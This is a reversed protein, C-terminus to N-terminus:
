MTPPSTMEPLLKDFPTVMRTVNLRVEGITPVKVWTHLADPAVPCTLMAAFMPPTVLTPLRSLAGSLAGWDTGSTIRATLPACCYPPRCRAKRCPPM